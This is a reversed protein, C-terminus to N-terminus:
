YLADEEPELMRGESPMTDILRMEVGEEDEVVSVSEMFLRCFRLVGSGFRAAEELDGQTTLVTGRTCVLSTGESEEDEFGSFSFYTHMKGYNTKVKIM